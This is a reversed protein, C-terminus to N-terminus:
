MQHYQAVIGANDLSQKGQQGTSTGPGGRRPVPSAPVPVYGQWPALSPGGTTEALASVGAAAGASVGAESEAKGRPCSQPSEFSTLIRGPKDGNAKPVSSQLAPPIKHASSRERLSVTRSLRQMHVELADAKVNPSSSFEELLISFRHL